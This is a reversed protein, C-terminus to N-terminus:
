NVDWISELKQQVNKELKGILEEAGRIQRNKKVITRQISMPPVPIAINLFIDRPVNRRRDVAGQMKSRYTERMAFSRLVLELFEVDITKKNKLKWITYAPSVAASIYKMQFGLVGEDIPFGVVLENRYVKKYKSIDISAIRKKFKQSQDILGREMTISMIPTNQAEGVRDKGSLELISGM